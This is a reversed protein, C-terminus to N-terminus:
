MSWHSAGLIHLSPTEYRFIIYFNKSNYFSSMMLISVQVQDAIGGEEDELMGDSDGDEVVIEPAESAM